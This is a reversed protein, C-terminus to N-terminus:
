FLNLNEPLPHSPMEVALAARTVLEKEFFNLVAVAADGMVEHVVVGAANLLGAISAPNDSWTHSSSSSTPSILYVVATRRRRKVWAEATLRRSHTAVTTSPTRPSPRINSTSPFIRPAFIPRVAYSPRSANPM